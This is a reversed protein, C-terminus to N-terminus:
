RTGKFALYYTADVLVTQGIENNLNEIVYKLGYHPVAPIGLDLWKQAAIQYGNQITQYSVLNLYKPRLFISLPKNPNLLWERTKGRQRLEDTDFPNAADDNDVCYFMRPRLSNQYTAASPDLSLQFKLKVGTIKYYDFLNTFDANGPLDALQFTMSGKATRTVDGTITTKYAMRKFFYTDNKVNVARAMRTKKPATRRRYKRVPRKSMPKRRRYLPM